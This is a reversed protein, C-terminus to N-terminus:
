MVYINIYKKYIFIDNPQNSLIIRYNQRADSLKDARLKKQFNHSLNTARDSLVNIRCYSVVLIRLWM